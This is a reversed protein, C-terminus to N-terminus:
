TEEELESQGDAHETEPMFYRMLGYGLIILGMGLATTWYFEFGPLLLAQMGIPIAIYSCNFAPVLINARARRYFGWQTILVAAEGAIFSFALVGWGAATQPTFRGGGATQGAGKLFPDLVGCIGACLGFTLGIVNPSGSRLGTLILLVCGGLLALTLAVTSSMDMTSMSLPPRFVGEVGVVITGATIALAGALEPHSISEKMIGLSYLLLVVMGMGYMSTYLATTGGLPAVMLHYIFTTHNLILGVLYILPARSGGARPADAPRGATPRRFVRRLWGKVLDWVEIGQRELAKALHTQSTSVIGLLIILYPSSSM